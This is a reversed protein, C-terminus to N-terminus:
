DKWILVKIWLVIDLQGQHGIYTGNCHKLRASELVSERSCECKNPFYRLGNHQTMCYLFLFDVLVFPNKKIGRLQAMSMEIDVPFGM